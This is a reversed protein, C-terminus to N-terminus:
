NPQERAEGSRRRRISWRWVLWAILLLAVAALYPLNSGIWLVASLAIVRSHARSVSATPIVVSGGWDMAELRPLFGQRVCGELNYVGVHRTFHSAVLLDRSFEDWDLPGFGSGAPLPGDTVGVSIGQARPGLDAIIAAGVFRAYSTYIMLDEENGRVDVTGLMRDLLTSHVSREVPLYPMQYTEVPWGRSQIQRILASYAQQARVIRGGDVSQRLLTGILHWRHTKLAALEAFDPEIDLGVAAWRLGNGGTWKEFDSIRAAAEPANGANFYIGQDKPLMLWAIVPIQQQNLSRVVQARQPSLDTIAVAIQAHLNHLTRIVDPRAFLDQMQEVGQDCCAFALQPPVGSGQIRLDAACIAPAAPAFLVSFLYAAFAFGVPSRHNPLLPWSFEM